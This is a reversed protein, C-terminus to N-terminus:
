FNITLDAAQSGEIHDFLISIAQWARKNDQYGVMQSEQMKPKTTSHRVSRATRRATQPLVNSRVCALFREFARLAVETRPPLANHQLVHPDVLVVTCKM